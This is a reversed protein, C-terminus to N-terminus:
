VSAGAASLAGFWSLGDVTKGAPRYECAVWGDYGLKDLLNLIYPYPIEGTEPESRDPVILRGDQVISRVRYLFAPNISVLVTAAPALPLDGKAEVCSAAPLAGSEVTLPVVYAAGAAQPHWATLADGSQTLEAIICGSPEL